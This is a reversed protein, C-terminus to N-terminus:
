SMRPFSTLFMARFRAAPHHNYGQRRLFLGARVLVLDRAAEPPLAIPVAATDCKGAPLLLVKDMEDLLKAFVEIGGVRFEDAGRNTLGFLSRRITASLDEIGHESDISFEPLVGLEFSVDGSDVAV